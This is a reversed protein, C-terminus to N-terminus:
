NQINVAARWVQLDDGGGMVQHYETGHHCPIWKAHNSVILFM